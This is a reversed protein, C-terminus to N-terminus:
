IVVEVASGILSDRSGVLAVCVNSSQAGFFVIDPSHSRLCGWNMWMKEYIYPKTENITGLM